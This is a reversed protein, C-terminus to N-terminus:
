QSVIVFAQLRSNYSNIRMKRWDCMPDPKKTIDIRSHIGLKTMIESGMSIDVESLNKADDSRKRRFEGFLAIQIAFFAPSLGM